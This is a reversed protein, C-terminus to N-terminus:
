SSTVKPKRVGFFAGLMALAFVASENFFPVDVPFPLLTVSVAYYAVAVVFGILAGVLIPRLFGTKRAPSRTVHKGVGGVAGGLLAALLFWVPWGFQITATATDIGPSTATIHAAGTGASRLHVTASGAPGIRVSEEKLSGPDVALTVTVSDRLSAGIVRVPFSVTQIGLGAAKKPADLVLAPHVPLWVVTGRPDFQPIVRVGVSDRPERAIVIVRELPYNTFGIQLQRPAISDGEEGNSALMLPIAGIERRVAPALSDQLGVLLSGRFIGADPLYRLALDRIIAPQLHVPRNDEAVGVISFPLLVLTDITKRPTTLTTGLAAPRRVIRASEGTRAALFQGKQLQVESTAPLVATARSSDVIRLKGARLASDLSRPLTSRHITRVQAIAAPPIASLASLAVMLGSQAIRNM